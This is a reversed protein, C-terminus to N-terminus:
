DSVRSMSTLILKLLVRVYKLIAFVCKEVKTYRNVEHYTESTSSFAFVFAKWPNWLTVFNNVLM